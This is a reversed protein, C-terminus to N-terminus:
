ICSYFKKSKKSKKFIKSKKSKKFKKSKKSKKFIKSKKSKKFIKSKKSKKFIKSKKSKKFFKYGGDQVYAEDITPMEPSKECEINSALADAINELHNYLVQASGEYNCKNAM